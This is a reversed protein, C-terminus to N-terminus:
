ARCGAPAKGEWSCSHKMSNFNGSDRVNTRYELQVSVKTSANTIPENKVIVATYQKTGFNGESILVIDKGHEDPGHTQIVKFKVMNQFMPILVKEILYLENPLSHMFALKQVM